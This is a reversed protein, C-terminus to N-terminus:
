HEIKSSTRHIEVKRSSCLRDPRHGMCSKGLYILESFDPRCYPRVFRGVGSLFTRQLGIVNVM